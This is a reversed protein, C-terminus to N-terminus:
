ELALGAKRLLVGNRFDEEGMFSELDSGTITQFHVGSHELYKKFKSQKFINWFAVRLLELRSNPLNKPAALALWSGPSAYDIGLERLTSVEPASPLREHAMVALTQVHGTKRLSDVESLSTIVVDVDGTMLKQLASAGGSSPEWPLSSPGLGVADLFGIREIDWISGLYAGSAMLDGPNAKLVGILDHINQWAEDSRVTLTAPNIAILAIPSYHTHDITTIGTWHLMTSEVRLVGLTYGNAPAQALTALGAVGNGGPRNVVNVPQSLQDALAVSLVHSVADHGAGTEWPVVFEVPQTPYGQEISSTQCACLTVALTCFGVVIVPRCDVVV